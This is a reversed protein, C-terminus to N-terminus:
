YIIKSKIITICDTSKSKIKVTHRKIEFWQSLDTAKAKKPQNYAEYIGLDSYIDQLITKYKSVPLTTGERVEKDQLCQLIKTDNSKNGQYKLITRKINSVNYKLERVKETGLIDYADKVLPKEAEILLIREDINGLYFMPIDKKLNVYEEFLNKFSIKAENNAKLKDTYIIINETSVNFGYKVYEDKLTVRSAYLSHTIKFNVIDLKVLNEDFYLEDDQKYVYQENLGAKNGKEIMSITTKRSDVSMKNVEVIWQKTTKVQNESYSKFEEYSVFKNYRTESFIHTVETNYQSDRVRGCIQIILTSIDLLTHAKNKDSVIYTRGNTDYLDCGEFCTSTYFNIPKVEDTTTAIKYTEGLKKQNSKRGRGVATNNSCIIRVSEPNLETKKLVDAIFEVSNVFFHLNGFSNDNLLTTVLQSVINLPSNTIVPKVNVTTTNKWQVEVIPFDKLETLIFEEEIPTATMFTVEKFKIAESLTKKIAKNRFIYSNFLTHWEDILLFFNQYPNYGNNELLTVVYELKDYTVAIKKIKNDNLYDLIEEDTVGQYVGLLNKHQAEKNKIVNVYPMAIITDLNNEIAITTGGCGTRGKDFLCNVPLENMFDSLYVDSEKTELITRKPMM